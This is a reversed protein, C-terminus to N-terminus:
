PFAPSHPVDSNALLGGTTEAGDWYNAPGQAGVQVKCTFQPAPLSAALHGAWFGWSWSVPGRLPFNVRFPWWGITVFPEAVVRQLSHDSLLSHVNGLPWLADM